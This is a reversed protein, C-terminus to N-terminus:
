KRTQAETIYFNAYQKLIFEEQSKRFAEYQMVRNIIMQAHESTCNSSSQQMLSCVEAIQLVNECRRKFSNTLFELDEAKLEAQERAKSLNLPIM